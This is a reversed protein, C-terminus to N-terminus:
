CVWNPEWKALYYKKGREDLIEKMFYAPEPEKAKKKAKKSSKATNGEEAEVEPEGDDMEEDADEEQEISLNAIAQLAKRGAARAPPDEYQIPPIPTTSKHSPNSAPQTIKEPTPTAETPSPTRPPDPNRGRHLRRRMPAIKRTKPKPKKKPSSDPLYDGDSGADPSMDEEEDSRTKSPM